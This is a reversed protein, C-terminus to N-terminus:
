RSVHCQQKSIIKEVVLTDLDVERWSDCVERWNSITNM